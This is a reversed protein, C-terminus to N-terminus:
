ANKGHIDSGGPYESVQVPSLNYEKVAGVAQKVQDLHKCSFKHMEEQGSAATVSCLSKCSCVKVTIPNCLKRRKCSVTESIYKGGLFCNCQGCNPPKRFTSYTASCSPCKGTGRATWKEKAASM